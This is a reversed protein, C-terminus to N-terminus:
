RHVLNLLEVICNYYLVPTHRVCVCVCVCVRRRYRALMADRLLFHELQSVFGLTTSLLQRNKFVAM